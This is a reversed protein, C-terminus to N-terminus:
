IFADSSLQDKKSQREELNDMGNAYCKLNSVKDVNFIEVNGTRRRDKEDTIKPIYQNL